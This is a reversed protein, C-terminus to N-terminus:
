LSKRPGGYRHYRGEMNSLRATMERIQSRMKSFTSNAKDPTISGVHCYGPTGPASFIMGDSASAMARIKRDNWPTEGSIQAATMWGRNQLFRILPDPCVEGAAAKAADELAFQFQYNM